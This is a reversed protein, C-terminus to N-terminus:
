CPSLSLSLTVPPILRDICSDKAAAKLEEWDRQIWREEESEKDKDWPCLNYCEARCKGTKLSISHPHPNYLFSVCLKLSSPQILFFPCSLIHSPFIHDLQLHLVCPWDCHRKVVARPNSPFDLRNPKSRKSISKLINSHHLTQLVPYTLHIQLLLFFASMELWEPLKKCSSVFSQNIYHNM